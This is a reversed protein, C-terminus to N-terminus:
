KIECVIAFPLFVCKRVMESRIIIVAKENRFACLISIGEFPNSENRSTIELSIGLGQVTSAVKL